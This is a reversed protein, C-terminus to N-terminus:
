AIILTQKQARDAQWLGNYSTMYVTNHYQFPHAESTSRQPNDKASNAWMIYYCKVQSQHVTGVWTM